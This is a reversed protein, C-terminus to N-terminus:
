TQHRSCVRHSTTCLMSTVSAQETLLLQRMVCTEAACCTQVHQTLWCCDAAVSNRSIRAKEVGAHQPGPRVQSWRTVHVAAPEPVEDGFVLQLNEMAHKVQYSSRAYRTLCSTASGWGSTTRSVM